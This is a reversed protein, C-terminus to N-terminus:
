AFILSIACGAVVLTRLVDILRDMALNPSTMGPQTQTIVM